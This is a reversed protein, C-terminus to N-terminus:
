EQIGGGDLPILTKSHSILRVSSFFHANSKFDMHVAGSLCLFYSVKSRIIRFFKGLAFDNRALKKAICGTMRAGERTHNRGANTRTAATNERQSLGNGVFTEAIDLSRRLKREGKGDGHSRCKKGPSRCFIGGLSNFFLL